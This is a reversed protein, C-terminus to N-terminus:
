FDVIINKNETIDRITYQNDSIENAKEVGNITFTGVVNGGIPSFTVVVNEHLYVRDRRGETSIASVSGLAPDMNIINIDFMPDEAYGVVINLRSHVNEIVYRNDVIEDIHSVGNITFISVHYHPNPLFNIVVTDGEFVFEEPTIITRGGNPNKNEFDIDYVPDHDVNIYFTVNENKATYSLSNNQISNTVDEKNAYVSIIHEHTGPTMTLIIDAGPSFTTTSLTYNCTGGIVVANAIFLGDQTITYVYTKGNWNFTITGTRSVSGTNADIVFTCSDESFQGSQENNLDHIWTDNSAWAVATVKGSKKFNLTLETGGYPANFMIPSIDMYETYNGKDNVKLLTAKCIKTEPNWDTISSLVWLANNYWYFTKFSDHINELQIEASLVRTDVSYLDAIYEKWYRDYIDINSVTFTDPVYIETPTSFDHSTKMCYPTGMFSDEETPVGFVSIGESVTNVRDELGLATLDYVVIWRLSMNYVRKDPGCMRCPYLDHSSTTLSRMVSGTVVYRGGTSIDLQDILESPGANAGAYKTYLDNVYMQEINVSALILYKHKAQMPTPHYFYVPYGGTLGNANTATIDNLHPYSGTTTSCGNVKSISFNQFSRDHFLMAPSVYLYDERTFNPIEKIVLATGMSGYGVDPQANNIWCNKGIARKLVPSDDTLNYFTNSNVTDDTMWLMKKSSSDYYPKAINTTAM